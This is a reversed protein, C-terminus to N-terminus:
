KPKVGSAVHLGVLRAIMVALYLAGFAGELAALSRALGSVPVIDGYGMTTLSVLSFYLLDDALRHFTAAESTGLFSGPESLELIEYLAAFAIAILLYAVIAAMITNTTVDQRRFLESLVIVVVLAIWLDTIAASAIQLQAGGFVLACSRVVLILVTFAVFSWRQVGRWSISYAGALLVLGFLFEVLLASGAATALPSFVM